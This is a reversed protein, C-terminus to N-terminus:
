PRASEHPTAIVHMKLNADFVFSKTGILQRVGDKFDSFLPGAILENLVKEQEDATLEGFYKM